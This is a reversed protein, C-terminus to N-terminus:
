RTDLKTGPRSMGHFNAIQLSGSATRLRTLQLRRTTRYLGPVADLTDDHEIVGEVRRELIPLTRRAFTALGFPVRVTENAGIM